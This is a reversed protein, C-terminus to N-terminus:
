PAGASMKEMHRFGDTSFWVLLFITFNYGAHVLFSAGVSGTRARVLTLVAGVAFLILLPAWAFALQLAHLLMFGAATIAVAAVMGVRQALAPYLMGRFLLEEVFPAVTCGFVAMIWADSANRFFHEIPLSKPIPLVRSTVLVAASLAIGVMVWGIVRRAPFNWRIAALFNAAHARVLVYIFLVTLLYALCQAPIVVRADRALDTIAMGRMPGIRAAIGVAIGGVVVVSVLFVVFM